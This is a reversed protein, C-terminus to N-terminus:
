IEVQPAAVAAPAPAPTEGIPVMDVGVASPAVMKLEAEGDLDLFSTRAEKLRALTNKDIEVAAQEGAAKIKTATSRAADIAVQLRAQADLSLMSGLSKGRAAAERVRKVDLAQVGAAMEELLDRVESNIAKIAEVDDQAIRGTMVYLSIESYKASANFIGILERADSIATELQESKAEPCLLGFTSEACIGRIMGRAKSRVKGSQEFEKPDAITRITDWEAIERGGEVRTETASKDYEVNGKVSTKVIVLLGPRLTSTKIAM